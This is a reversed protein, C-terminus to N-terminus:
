YSCASALLTAVTFYLLLLSFVRRRLSHALACSICTHKFVYFTKLVYTHFFPLHFPQTMVVGTFSPALTPPSAVAPVPAAPALFTRSSLRVSVPPVFYIFMHFYTSLSFTSHAVQACSIYHVFLITTGLDVNCVTFDDITM